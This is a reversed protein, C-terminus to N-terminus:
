ACRNLFLIRIKVRKGTRRAHEDPTHYITPELGSRILGFVTLNTNTSEGSGM